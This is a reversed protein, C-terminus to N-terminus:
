WGPNQVLYGKNVENQHFCHLYMSRNFTREEFVVPQYSFAGPATQEIQLGWMQGQMVGDEEAIMWRMIDWLRNDEFALEIARENRVRERFEASTLNEPLGPMGSRSRITNIAEYAEAVPGQAENLAEAYMLYADALRYLYNHPIAPASLRLADPIFKRQWHGGRCDLAHDHGQYLHLVPLEENWYAGNYGITQAFRPDLEAYKQTIDDGGAMDWTQPTGDKKEYKRVFNFSITMGYGSFPRAPLIGIFPYQTRSTSGKFKNALIIEPNDHTEWMYKYNKDPGYETILRVGASPAWDIVAKAADAAMQWRNPDENGYCILNNNNGLSLYPTARNFLPSAALLLTKAKVMLAVGKTVRGKMDSPFSNPLLQVAQECDSVIFNVVEEVTNRVLPNEMVDQTTLRRDVIPVGGYRKLMEYYNMARIALAEGRVQDIYAQDVGPVDAIRELLINARRIVAWRLYHRLDSYHINTTNVGGRNWNHPEGWSVAVEGEDTVGVFAFRDSGSHGTIANPGGSQDHIALMSHIGERYLGAIFTEVQTRSSFITDENVDVGPPKDLFDDLNNECSLLVIGFFLCLSTINVLYKM